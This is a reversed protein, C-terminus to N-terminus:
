GEELKLVVGRIDFAQEIMRILDEREDRTASHIVVGFSRQNFIFQVDEDWFNERNELVSYIVSLTTRNEAVLSLADSREIIERIIPKADSEAIETNTEYEYSM